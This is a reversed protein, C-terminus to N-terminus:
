GGFLARRIRDTCDGVESALPTPGVARQVLATVARRVEESGCEFEAFARTQARPFSSPFRSQLPFVALVRALVATVCLALGLM